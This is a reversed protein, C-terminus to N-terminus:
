GGKRRGIEHISSVDGEVYVTPKNIQRSPREPERRPSPPEPGDGTKSPTEEEPRRRLAIPFNDNLTVNLLPRQRDYSRRRVERATFQFLDLIGLAAGDCKAEGRLGRLLCSTFLSNRERPFITSEEDPGSAAMLVRGRGDALTDYSRQALVAIGGSGQAADRGKIQAAGAFCSDLLVVLRGAAISAFRNSIEDTPIMGSDLLDTRADYAALYSAGGTQWGHGSFFFIATDDERTHDSLWELERVIAVATAQEELLLHVRDARYGCIEPDWLTCALDVADNLVALPLRSLDRSAAQYGAVGVVVAYGHEFAASM